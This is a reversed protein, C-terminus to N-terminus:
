TTRAVVVAALISVAGAIVLIVPTTLNLALACAVAIAIVGGILFFDPVFVYM